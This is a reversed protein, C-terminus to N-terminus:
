ETAVPQKHEELAARVAHWALTACKVRSPYDRVGALVSLKGLGKPCECDTTVVNHFADFLHEVDAVKKGKLAETMLSASASSIACGAGQFAIDKITGDQIDLFVSVRDGCLPNVGDAKHTPEAIIRFNRPRKNHDLIVEQYLDRLDNM